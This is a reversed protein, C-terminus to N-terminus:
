PAAAAMGEEEEEVDEEDAEDEEKAKGKGEKPLQYKSGRNYHYYNGWGSMKEGQRFPKLCRFTINLRNTMKGVPQPKEKPLAHEIGNFLVSLSGPRLLVATEHADAMPDVVGDKTQLSTKSKLKCIAGHPSRRVKFTRMAGLSISAVTTHALFREDDTHWSIYEGQDMYNNLIIANYTFGTDAEIKTKLVNLWDPIAETMYHAGMYSVDVSSGDATPTGFCFTHRPTSRPKGFKTYTVKQWPLKELHEILTKQEDASLFTPNYSFDAANSKPTERSIAEKGEHSAGKQRPARKKKEITKEIGIAKTSAAASKRPM